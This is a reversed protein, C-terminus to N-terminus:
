ANTEPNSADADASRERIARRAASLVQRRGQADLTPWLKLLAALDADRAAISHPAGSEREPSLGRVLKAPAPANRSPKVSRNRSTPALPVHPPRARFSTESNASIEPSFASNAPGASLNMVPDSDAQTRPLGGFDASQHCAPSLSEGTTGTAAQEEGQRPTVDPMRDVLANDTMRFSRSYRDVLKLSSLRMLIQVEKPHAKAHSFLRVGFGHRLAHCDAYRGQSDCYRLFDSQERDARETATTAEAVWAARADEIDARMAKAAHKSAAVHLAAAGPMKGELYARLTEVASTPLPITAHKKNKAHAGDITVSPDSGDLVFAARTLSRMEKLRLGTISGVLYVIARDPGAVGRREPATQATEILRRLEDVDLARRDHRRKGDERLRQVQTLPSGHARGKAVMWDAFANAATVIYNIRNVSLGKRKADGKRRRALAATISASSLDAWYVAGSDEFLTSVASRYQKVYEECGGAARLTESWEAVHMALPSQAAVRSAPILAWEALREVLSPPVTNLWEVLHPKLPENASALSNIQDVAKAMSEAAARDEHLPLKRLIGRHDKWVAYWKASKRKERGLPTAKTYIIQRLKM